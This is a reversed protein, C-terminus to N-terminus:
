LYQFLSENRRERSQFCLCALNIGNSVLHKIEETWMLQYQDYILEVLSTCAFVKGSGSFRIPHNRGMSKSKPSKWGFCITFVTKFQIMSYTIVQVSTLTTDPNFKKISIYAHKLIFNYLPGSDPFSQDNGKVKLRM